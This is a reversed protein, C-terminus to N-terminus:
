RQLLSLEIKHSKESQKALFILLSVVLPQLLRLLADKCFEGSSHGALRLNIVVHQIVKLFHKDGRVDADIGRKLDNVANFVAYRAVFIDRCCFEVSNELLLNRRQQRLIIGVISGIPVKRSVM